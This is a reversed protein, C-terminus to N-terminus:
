STLLRRKDAHYGCAALRAGLGGNTPKLRFPFITCSADYRPSFKLFPFLHPSTELLSVLQETSIHAHGPTTLTVEAPAPTKFRIFSRGAYAYVIYFVLIENGYMAPIKLRSSVSEDSSPHLVFQMTVLRAIEDALLDALPTSLKPRVM